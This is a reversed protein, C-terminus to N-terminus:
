NGYECPSYEFAGDICIVNFLHLLKDRFFPPGGPSGHGHMEIVKAYLSM